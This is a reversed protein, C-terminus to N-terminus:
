PRDPHKPKPAGVRAKLLPTEQAAADPPVAQRILFLVQVMARNDEGETKKPAISRHLAGKATPTAPARDKDVDSSKREHRAAKKGVPEEAAPEARRKVDVGAKGAARSEEAAVAAPTKGQSSQAAAPKGDDKEAREKKYDTEGARFRGGGGQARVGASLELGRGPVDELAVRMQRAQRAIERDAPPEGEEAGRRAPIRAEDGPKAPRNRAAVHGRGDRGVRAFGATPESRPTQKSRVAGQQEAAASTETEEAERGAPRERRGREDKRGTRIAEGASREAPQAETLLSARERNAFGLAQQKLQTQLPEDFDRAVSLATFLDKHKGFEGLAGAIQDRSAEVLVGNLTSSEAETETAPGVPSSPNGATAAQEEPASSGPQLTLLRELPRGSQLEQRVGQRTLLREVTDLGRPVDVAAVEVVTVRERGAPLLQVVEGAKVDSPAIFRYRRGLDEVALNSVARRAATADAVEVSAFGRRDSEDDVRERMEADGTELEALSREEPTAGKALELSDVAAEEAAEGAVPEGAVGSSSVATRDGRDTEVSAVQLSSDRDRPPAIAILLAAAAALGALGASWRLTRSLTRKERPPVPPLLIDREAATLVRGPFDEPLRHRLADGLLQRVERLEELRERARPSRRLEEEVRQREEANLEDDLYASLLSDDFGKGM